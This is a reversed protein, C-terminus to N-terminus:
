RTLSLNYSVSFLIYDSRCKKESNALVACDIYQPERAALQLGWKNLTVDIVPSVKASEYKGIVDSKIYSLDAGIGISIKDKSYVVYKVQSYLRNIIVFSTAGIELAINKVPEVQLGIGIGTTGLSPKLVAPVQTSDAKGLGTLSVALFLTGICVVKCVLGM